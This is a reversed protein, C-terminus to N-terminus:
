RKNYIVPYPDHYKKLYQIQLKGLDSKRVSNRASCIISHLWEEEDEFYDYEDGHMGGECLAIMFDVKNKCASCIIDETAECPMLGILLNADQIDTHISFAERMLRFSDTSKEYPSLRPDFITIKGKVQNASIRKGLRPIIGGAVELINQNCYDFEHNLLDIFGIYINDEKKLFGLEDYIERVVDPLLDDFREIDLCSLIYEKEYETFLDPYQSLYRRIAQKNKEEM